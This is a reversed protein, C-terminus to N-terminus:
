GKEWGCALCYTGVDPLLKKCEPCRSEKRLDLAKIVWSLIARYDSKYEHGSSLKYNSLKDVAAKAGKTGYSDVLKTYEAETMSVQEAYSLLSSSLIPVIGSKIYGISVRDIPYAYQVLAEPASELCRTIGADVKSGRSQHKSWNQLAVWGDAYLLKDDKEFQALMKTVMDADFGTDFSVRKLPLEYVGAINTLPNTLLYLFLLKESPDLDMVYPDTWFATNVYRNKSM